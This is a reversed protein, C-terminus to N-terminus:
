LLERKGTAWDMVSQEVMEIPIHDFKETYFRVGTNDSYQVEHAQDDFFYITAIAGHSDQIQAYPKIQEIITM